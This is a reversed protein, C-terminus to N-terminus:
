GTVLILSVFIGAVMGLSLSAALYLHVLRLTVVDDRDREVVALAVCEVALLAAAAVLFFLSRNGEIIGGIALLAPAVIVWWPFGQAPDPEVPEPTGIPEAEPDVVTGKNVRDKESM